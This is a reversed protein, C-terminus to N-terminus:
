SSLQCSVSSATGGLLPVNHKVSAVLNAANDFQAREIVVTPDTNMSRIHYKDDVPQNCLTTERGFLCRPPRRHTCIEM